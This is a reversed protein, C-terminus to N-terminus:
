KGQPPRSVLPIPVFSGQLGMKYTIYDVHERIIYNLYPYLQPIIKDLSNRTKTGNIVDYIAEFVCNVEFVHNEPSAEETEEIDNYGNVSAIIALSFKKIKNKQGELQNFSAKIQTQMTGKTGLIPRQILQCRSEVLDVNILEIDSIYKKVTTKKKTM